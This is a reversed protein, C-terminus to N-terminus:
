CIPINRWAATFVSIHPYPQQRETAKQEEEGMLLERHTNNVELPLQTREVGGM